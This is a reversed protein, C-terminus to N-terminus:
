KKCQMVFGPESKSFTAEITDTQTAWTLNTMDLFAIGSTGQAPGYLKILGAKFREDNDSSTLGYAVCTLTKTATNFIFSARFPMSDDQFEGTAATVIDMDRPWDKEPRLQVQGRSAAVVQDPTMGWRTYRWDARAASAFSLVTLSVCIFRMM